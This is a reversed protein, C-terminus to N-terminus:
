VRVAFGIGLDWYSPQGYKCSIVASDSPNKRLFTPLVGANGAKRRGLKSRTHQM